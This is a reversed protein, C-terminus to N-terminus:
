RNKENYCIAKKKRTKRKKDLEERKKNLAIKSKSSM